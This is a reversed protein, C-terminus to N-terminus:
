RSARCKTRPRGTQRLSHDLGLRKATDQVWGPSGLPCGRRISRHIAALESATLPANVRAIWDEPRPVPWESQLWDDLGHLRRWLASWQWDEARSVLGARLANREVYRGLSLLHGDSEVPFSKFRDQYVHGHGLTGNAARFRKAHTGALYQFFASLQEGDEPAVVFHWHNPMLEYTLIPLPMRRLTQQILDEFDAYDADCAFLQQRLAGRNLVHYIYGPEVHRKKPIMVERGAGM